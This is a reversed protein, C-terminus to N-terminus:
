DLKIEVKELNTTLNFKNVNNEQLLDLVKKVAKYDANGDGKIAVEALPNVERAKRIWWALQNDVSDMPIGKSVEKIIKDKNAQDDEANLFLRVNKIDIGISAGSKVFRDVEKPTLEISYQKAVEKILKGRKKDATDLGNDFNFFVRNDKDIAITIIDREPATKESVSNPTDVQVVEAPKFSTTLMFFTLLLMFLDVMPTMDIKPQKVTVKLKSM